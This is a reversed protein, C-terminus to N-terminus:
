PSELTSLLQTDLISLGTDLDGLLPSSTLKPFACEINCAKINHKAYLFFIIEHLFLHSININLLLSPFFFLPFSMPKVRSPAEWGCSAVPQQSQAVM